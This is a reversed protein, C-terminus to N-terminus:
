RAINASAAALRAANASAPQPLWLSLAPGGALPVVRLEGQTRFAALSSDPGLVLSAAGRDSVTGLEIAAASGDLPASYLRYQASGVDQAVFAVRVGDPALSFEPVSSTGTTTVSTGALSLM